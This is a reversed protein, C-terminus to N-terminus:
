ECREGTHCVCDPKKCSGGVANPVNAWGSKECGCRWCYEPGRVVILRVRGVGEANRHAHGRAEPTLGLHSDNCFYCPTRPEDPVPDEQASRWLPPLPPPGEISTLYRTIHRPRKTKM